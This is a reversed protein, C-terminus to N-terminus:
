IKIHFSGDADTFGALWYNNLDGTLDLRFKIHSRESRIDKFKPHSLINNIVQDYKYTRLKGNILHLVYILGEKKSIVLNYANKIKYINGFGLRKKIFYALSIDNLHFSISLQLNSSFHGDGDILGALYSGFHNDSIPKLHKTNHVSISKLHKTNHISISKLHKTNHVSISKIKELISIIENRLTESTGSLKILNGASQSWLKLKKVIDKLISYKFNKLSTTGAYLLMLFGIFKVEPHLSEL